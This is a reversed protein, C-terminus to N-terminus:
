PVEFLVDQALLETVAARTAAVADPAGDPVGFREALLSTLYRVSVPQESAEFVAMGLEGLRVVQDGFQVLADVAGDPTARVLMDTPPRRRVCLAPEMLHEVIGVLSSAERYTVQLIPGTRRVLEHLRQLGQQMVGLSSTQPALVPVADFLDLEALVPQGTHDDRRDLVILRALRPSQHAPLMGAEAPAVERRRGGAPDRVSLPKPYPLIRLDEDIGITEDSLYGFRRGLEQTLTTKGTLSPAVYVVSAGTVPDSVGGAHLMLLGGARAEILALTIRQTTTELLWSGADIPSADDPVEVLVEAEPECDFDPPCSAWLRDLLARM